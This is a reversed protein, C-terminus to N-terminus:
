FERPDPVEVASSGQDASQVACVGPLSMDLGFYVDIAPTTGDLVARVFDDVMLYESTGHGGVAAEPPMKPHSWGLPLDIMGTCHPIDNLIAKFGAYGGRPSELVGETGYISFYHFSPERAVVFGCTVKIVNGKATKFLAVEMDVTGTSKGIREGPNMGVASVIRDDLIQLVPGLSHTCYRIPRMGARWTPGTQSDPTIGDDRGAMLSRCDHIYEAEAYYPEGIKGDKVLRDFTQLFAMYNMNEAFMYTKGTERVARVLDRAEDISYVAPVESLVHKDAQLAAVCMQAHLPAPTGVVVADVDCALLDEFSTVWRNVANAEAFNRAREENVDCVATVKSDKRANFVGCFSAGRRLGAIGIRLSM